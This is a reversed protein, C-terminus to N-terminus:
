GAGAESKERVAKMILTEPAPHLPLTVTFTTGAGVESEAAVSGGHAEAISQVIALGIGTGSVGSSAATSARFFREFIRQLEDAPIGVGTDHVAVSVADPDASVAVTVTGGEPTFKVANSILNDLLQTLRTPDGELAPVDQPADLAIGVAKREAAARMSEVETGALGALDVPQPELTLRDSDVRGMFLIDDVLKNLRDCNRDIIELFEKQQDTLEGAEGGLVLELYGVIAALPTRLEHSASSVFRNKLEDLERLRENQELLSAASEQERRHLRERTLALALQSAVTALQQGVQEAQQPLVDAYVEAAPRGEVLV